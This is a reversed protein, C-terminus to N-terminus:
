TIEEITVSSQNTPAPTDKESRVEEEETVIPEASTSQPAPPRPRINVQPMRMRMYMPFSRPDFYMPQGHATTGRMQGRLQAQLRQLNVMRIHEQQSNMYHRVNPATPNPNHVPPPKQAQQIQQRITLVFTGLNKMLSTLEDLYKNIFNPVSGKAFFEQKMRLYRVQRTQLESRVGELSQMVLMLLTHKALPASHQQIIRQSIAQFITQVNPLLNGVYDAEEANPEKCNLSSLFNDEDAMKGERENEYENWAAQREEETLDEETENQLLSDHEHYTVIWEKKKILLEALLRDKPVLPTPRNSTMEPNFSYLEALDAASFHRDIQQEDVVRFSLSLKTIQRDYIKEEMTGQALLRYIYVPKKQGFRFVRFIAQMDDSPNWSADLLIVRNAGVLNTGLGGAKTSILFLRARENEPNNFMDIYSKRFDASTSGDMRFYDRGKIWSGSLNEQDMEEAADDGSLIDEIMDLTLLSTSFVIVKDGIVECEKLIEILLIMKGSLNLKFRDEPTIYSDFWQKAEEVEEEPAEGIEDDKDRRSRTKYKKVVEDGSSEKEDSGSESTSKVEEESSDNIFSEDEEEAEDKWDNLMRRHEARQFNSRCIHPHTWICRLYSLDQFLTAGKTNSNSVNSVHDLYHRYMKIQVESLKVSIVFEHKPPLFKTLSSYDCRQVCGDLLKHLIHTRKKMLKVDYQTSNEYQGNQIPHVFRNRFEKATGLLHPKVFSLMCHYEQLNNQLPTGTLVIRRQTKMPAMARSIASSVNKLIHGEDCVVIDPGPDILLQHFQKQNKQKSKGKKTVPGAVLRRMIDYSIILVGGERKWWKLIDLRTWNDKAAAFQHVQINGETNELWMEFENAWNLITNYPCVVMATKIKKSVRDNTMCTHLFTIVQLTKGLGMCHALICGSGPKGEELDKLSEITSEWMFKVGNVQHVKLKDILDPSIEVLEEKSVPDVELVLKRTIIEKGDEALDEIKNYLKQKEAIRKKREKEALQAEQTEETLKKQSIIKKINKRGKGPTDEKGEGASGENGSSSDMKKIRKLKKKRKRKDRDEESDTTTTHDSSSHTKKKSETEGDSDSQIAKRKVSKKGRSMKERAEDSDDLIKIRASLLKDYKKKKKKSPKFDDSSSNSKNEKKAKKKKSVTEVDLESSTSSVDSEMLESRALSNPNVPKSNVIKKEPNELEAEDSSLCISSSSDGKSEKKTVKPKCKSIKAAGGPMDDKKEKKKIEPFKELNAIVRELRELNREEESKVLSEAKSGTTQVVSHDLAFSGLEEYRELVVQTKMMLKPDDYDLEQVVRSKFLNKGSNKSSKPQGFVVGEGESDSIDPSFISKESPSFHLRRRSAPGPRAAGVSKVPESENESSSSEFIMRKAQENNSDIMRTVKEITSTLINSVTTDDSVKDDIVVPDDITVSVDHENQNVEELSCSLETKLDKKESVSKKVKESGGRSIPIEVVDSSSDFGNQTGEAKQKQKSLYKSYHDTVAKMVSKLEKKHQSMIDDMKKLVHYLSKSRTSEIEKLKSMKKQLSICTTDIQQFAHQMWAPSETDKVNSPLISSVKKEKKSKTRKGFQKLLRFYRQKPKLREPDCCYCKWGEQETISVEARGFNRRICQAAFAM